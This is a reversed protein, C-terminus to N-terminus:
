PEIRKFTVVWVYPNVSWGYGRSANLGEWLYAYGHVAVPLLATRSPARGVAAACMPGDVGEAIADDENIDQLRELRVDVNELWTRSGWKPLFMAPRLKGARLERPPTLPTRTDEWNRQVGDAEYQIPAWALRYGVELARLGVVKPSDTDFYDPFRFAERVYLRDGRTGYPCRAMLQPDRAAALKAIAEHDVEMGRPFTMVRRTQTKPEADRHVARVMTGSFPIPLEKM